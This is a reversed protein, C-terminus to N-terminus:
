MLWKCTNKGQMMNESSGEGVSVAIHMGHASRFLQFLSLLPHARACTNLLIHLGADWSRPGSLAIKENRLIHEKRIRQIADRPKPKSLVFNKLLISSEM